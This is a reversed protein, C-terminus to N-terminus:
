FPIDSCGNCEPPEITFCEPCKPMKCTPCKTLLRVKVVEECGPCTVDRVGHRMNYIYVAYAPVSLQQVRKEIRKVRGEDSKSLM